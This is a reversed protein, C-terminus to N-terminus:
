ESSTEKVGCLKMPTDTKKSLYVGIFESNKGGYLRVGVFNIQISFFNFAWFSREEFIHFCAICQFGFNFKPNCLIFVIIFVRYHTSLKNYISVQFLSDVKKWLLYVFFVNSLFVSRSLRKKSFFDEHFCGAFQNMQDPNRCVTKVGKKSQIGHGVRPPRREGKGGCFLM